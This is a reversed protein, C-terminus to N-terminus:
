GCGGTMERSSALLAEPSSLTWVESDSGVCCDGDTATVGLEGVGVEGCGWLSSWCFKTESM